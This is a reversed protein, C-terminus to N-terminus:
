LLKCSTRAQTSIAQAATVHLLQAESNTLCFFYGNMGRWM